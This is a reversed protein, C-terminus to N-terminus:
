IEIVYSTLTKLMKSSSSKFEYVDCFAYKKRNKMTIIGNTAGEKGHTIIKEIFLESAEKDKMKNIAKAFDEKGIITKDGVMNWVIDDTVCDIIFQAKGKGFAVNFNKLFEKKPSNGCDPQVTIKTM